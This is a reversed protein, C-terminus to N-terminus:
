FGHRKMLLSTAVREPGTMYDLLHEADGDTVEEFAAKNCIGGYQKAVNSLIASKTASDTSALFKANIQANTM